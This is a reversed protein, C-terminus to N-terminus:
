LVNSSKTIDEMKKKINKLLKESLDNVIKQLFEVNDRMDQITQLKEEKDKGEFSFLDPASPFFLQIAEAVKSLPLVDNPDLILALASVTSSLIDNKLTMFSTYLKEGEDTLHYVKRGRVGEFEESYSLYGRESLQNLIFYLTSDQVNWSPSYEEIQKKILYGHTPSRKLIALILPTIFGKMMSGAYKDAMERINESDM